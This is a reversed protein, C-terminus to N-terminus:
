PSARGVSFRYNGDRFAVPAAGEGVTMWRHLMAVDFTDGARMAMAQGLNAVGPGRSGYRLRPAPSGWAALWADAGTLLALSYIRREGVPRQRMEAMFAFTKWDPPRASWRLPPVREALTMCGESSFAAGHADVPTVAPHINDLVAGADLTLDQWNLRGTSSRLAPQIIPVGNLGASRLAAPQWGGHSGVTFDHRGTPLINAIRWVPGGAEARAFASAQLALAHRNPVTSGSFVAIRNDIRHWVGLVCRPRLHDLEVVSLEVADLPTGIRAPDVVACARLAFLVLTADMRRPSEIPTLENVSLLTGLVEPTLVFRRAPDDAPRDLLTAADGVDALHSHDMDNRWSAGATVAQPTLQRAAEFQRREVSRYDAWPPASFRLSRDSARVPKPVLAMGAAGALVARRSMRWDPAERGMSRPSCLGSMNLSTGSGNREFSRM